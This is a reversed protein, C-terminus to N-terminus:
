KEATRWFVVIMSCYDVSHILPFGHWFGASNMGFCSLDPLSQLTQSEFMPFSLLKLIKCIETLLSGSLTMRKSLSLPGKKNM